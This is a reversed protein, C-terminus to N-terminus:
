GKVRAYTNIWNLEWSHGGDASFSQRSSAEGPGNSQMTFRVLINKGNLTDPGIFELQRGRKEGYLATGFSGNGATTFSLSWQHAVPDYLRLAVFDLHGAPGRAQVEALNAKGNWIPLDTKIGDYDVWDASGTLPHLLRRIHIKWTGREFDFDHSGDRLSVAPPIPEVAPAAAPLLSALLLPVLKRLTM